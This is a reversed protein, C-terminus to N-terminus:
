VPLLIPIGREREFSVKKLFMERLVNVTIMRNALTNM